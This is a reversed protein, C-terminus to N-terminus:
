CKFTNLLAAGAIIQDRNYLLHILSLHYEVRLDNQIYYLTGTLDKLALPAQDAHLPMPFLM